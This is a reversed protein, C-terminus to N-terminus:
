FQNRFKLLMKSIKNRASTLDEKGQTLGIDDLLTELEDESFQLRVEKGIEELDGASGLKNGITTGSYKKIDIEDILSIFERISITLIGRKM